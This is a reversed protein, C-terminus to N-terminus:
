ESTLAIQKLTNPFKIQESNLQCSASCHHSNLRESFSTVRTICLFLTQYVKKHESGTIMNM